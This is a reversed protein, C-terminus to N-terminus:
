GVEVVAPAAPRERTGPQGAVALVRAAGRVDGPKALAAASRGLDAALKDLTDRAALDEPRVRAAQRTEIADRYATAVALPDKSASVDLVKAAHRQEVVRVFARDTGDDAAAAYRALVQEPTRRLIWREAADEAHVDLLRALLQEQRSGSPAEGESKLRRQAAIADELEARVLPLAADAAAQATRGRTRWEDAAMAQAREVADDRLLAFDKGHRERLGAEVNRTLINLVGPDGASSATTARDTLAAILDARTAKAPDVDLAAIRENRSPTM